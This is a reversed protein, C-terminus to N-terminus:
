GDQYRWASAMNYLSNWWSNSNCETNYADELDVAVALAHEKRKFGECANYAFRAANEWTKNKSQARRPKPSTHKEKRPGSCAEQGRDREDVKGNHKVNHPYPIPETQDRGPKPM